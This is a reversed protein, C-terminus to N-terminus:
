HNNHSYVNIPHVVKGEAKQSFKIFASIERIDHLTYQFFYETLMFNKFCLPIVGMGKVKCIFAEFM